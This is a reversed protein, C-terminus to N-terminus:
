RRLANPPCLAALVEIRMRIEGSTLYKGNKPMAQIRQQIQERLHDIRKM